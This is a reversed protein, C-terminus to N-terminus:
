PSDHLGLFDCMLSSLNKTLEFFHKSYKQNKKRWFSIKELFDLETVKEGKVCLWVMHLKM